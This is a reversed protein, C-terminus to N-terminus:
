GELEGSPSIGRSFGRSAPVALFMDGGTAAAMPGVERFLHKKVEESIHDEPAVGAQASLQEFHRDDETSDGSLDGIRDLLIPIAAPTRGADLSSLLLIGDLQAAKPLTVGRFILFLPTCGVADNLIAFLSGESLFAWGNFSLGAGGMRVELLGNPGLRILGHDEMVRGAMIVSPRRTRWFGEYGAGKRQTEPRAHQLFELPLMDEVPAAVAQAIPVEVGIREAFGALDRGWDNMTLDPFKCAVLATIRALNHESPRVAGSAWRGVLSKDVELKAAARGRSLGLSGLALTFKVAFDKSEAM